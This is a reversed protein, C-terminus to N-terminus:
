CMPDYDSAWLAALKNLVPQTEYHSHLYGILAMLNAAIKPDDRYRDPAKAVTVAM